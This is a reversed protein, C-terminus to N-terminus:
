KKRTISKELEKVERELQMLSLDVGMDDISTKYDDDLSTRLEKIFFHGADKGLSNDMTTIIDQLARGMESSEVVNIDSMVSVTDVDEIYRTDKIKVHKLFDYKDELKKMVADLTFVAHGRDTKRGSINILINLLNEVIASKELEPM